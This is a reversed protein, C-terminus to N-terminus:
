LCVVRLFQCCPMSVGFFTMYPCLNIIHSTDYRLYVLFIYVEIQSLTSLFTPKINRSLKKEVLERKASEESGLDLPQNPSLTKCNIGIM